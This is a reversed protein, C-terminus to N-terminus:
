GNGMAAKYAEPNENYIKMREAYPKKLLNERTIGNNNETDTPLKNEMYVKKGDSAFQGPLQTKLADVKEDLGKVKGDEGM